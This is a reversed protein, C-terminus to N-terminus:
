VIYTSEVELNTDGVKLIWIYVACKSIEVVEALTFNLIKRQLQAKDLARCLVLIYPLMNGVGSM